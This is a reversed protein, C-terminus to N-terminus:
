INSVSINAYSRMVTRLGQCHNQEVRVNEFQRSIVIVIVAIFKQGLVRDLFDVDTLSLPFDEMKSVEVQILRHATIGHRQLMTM